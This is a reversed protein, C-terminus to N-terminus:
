TTLLVRTLILLPAVVTFDSASSSFARSPLTRPARWHRLKTQACALGATTDVRHGDRIRSRQERFFARTLHGHQQLSDGQTQTAERDRERTALRPATPRRAPLNQPRAIPNTNLSTCHLEWATPAACPWCALIGERRVTAAYRAWLTSAVVKFDSHKRM